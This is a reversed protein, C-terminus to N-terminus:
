PVISHFRNRLDIKFNAYVNESEDVNEDELNDDEEKRRSLTSIVSCVALYENELTQNDPLYKIDSTHLTAKSCAIAALVATHLFEYQGATQVMFHRDQRLKVVTSFIDVQGTQEAQQMINLLAIFTGTRGVGASCHVVLPTSTKIASVRQEFEVLAWPSSPVSHDPWSIYHYQTVKQVEQN